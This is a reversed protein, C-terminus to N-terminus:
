RVEGFLFTLLSVSTWVGAAGLIISLALALLFLPTEGLSLLREEFRRVAIRFKISPLPAPQLVAANRRRSGSNMENASM